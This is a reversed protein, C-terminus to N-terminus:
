VQIYVIYYRANQSRDETGGWEPVPSLRCGTHIRFYDRDGALHDKAHGASISDLVHPGERVSEEKTRPGWRLDSMSTDDQDQKYQKGSLQESDTNGRLDANLLEAVQSRNPINNYTTYNQNSLSLVSKSPLIFYSRRSNYSFIYGARALSETPQLMMGHVLFPQPNSEQEPCM